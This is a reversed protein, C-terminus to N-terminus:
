INKYSIAEWYLASCCSTYCNLSLHRNEPLAQISRDLIWAKWNELLRSINTEYPNLLFQSIQFLKRKLFVPVCHKGPSTHKRPLFGLPQQNKAIVLQTRILVTVYSCVIGNNCSSLSYPVQTMCVAKHSSDGTAKLGEQVAPEWPHAIESLRQHLSSEIRLPFFLAQKNYM